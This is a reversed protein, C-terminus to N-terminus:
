RSKDGRDRESTNKATYVDFTRIAPKQENVTIIKTIIHKYLYIKLRNM